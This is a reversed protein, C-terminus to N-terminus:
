SRLLIMGCSVTEAASLKNTVLSGAYVNEGQGSRASTPSALLTCQKAFKLASAELNCDYKMQYMDAANPCNYPNRGNKVTGQAVMM